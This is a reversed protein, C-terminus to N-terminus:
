KIKLLKSETSNFLYYEFWFVPEGALAELKSFWGVIPAGYGAMCLLMFSGIM